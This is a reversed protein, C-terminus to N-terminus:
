FRDKWSLISFLSFSFVILKIYELQPQLQNLSPVGERTRNGQAEFAHESIKQM